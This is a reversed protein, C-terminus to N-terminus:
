MNRSYSMKIQEDIARARILNYGNMNIPIVKNLMAARESAVSQVVRLEKNVCSTVSLALIMVIISRKINHMLQM